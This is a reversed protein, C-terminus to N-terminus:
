DTTNFACPVEPYKEKEACNEYGCYSCNLGITKFKVGLLLIAGASLINKADRAFFAPGSNKSIRIMEDSLVKITNDTVVSICINDIGRSKPATRAAVAMKSVIQLLADKKLGEEINYIM